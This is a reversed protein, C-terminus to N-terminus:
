LRTQNPTTSAEHVVEKLSAYSTQGLAVLLGEFLILALRVSQSDSCDICGANIGHSGSDAPREFPVITEKGLDATGIREGDYRSPIRFGGLPAKVIFM